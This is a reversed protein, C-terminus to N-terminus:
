PAGGVPPDFRGDIATWGGDVLLLTGTIFSSAPSALFAVATAIEKPEAWRRLATKEVYAPGWTPHEKIPVALPTSTPGPAVANVRIGRPGLEAALVKVLQAVGGKSAAYAGQGPEVVLSRTSALAVLSGAGRAAMARGAAQLFRFTGKLNVELVRDFEEERYELLPKRVNIGPTVVGVDLRGCESLVEEVLAQVSPGEVLDVGRAQAWAGAQVIGRATERAADPNLDAAVVRAGLDALAEASARGIGSGAGVVLAVQGELCFRQRYDM